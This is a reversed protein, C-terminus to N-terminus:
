SADRCAHAHIVIEGRRSDSRLRARQIPIVRSHNAVSMTVRRKRRRRVPLVDDLPQMQELLTEGLGHTRWFEAEEAESAFEPVESWDNIRELNESRRGVPM